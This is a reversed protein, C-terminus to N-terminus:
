MCQVQLKRSSSSIWRVNQTMNQTLQHLFSHKQSHNVKRSERKLINSLTHIWTWCFLYWEIRFILLRWILQFIKAFQQPWRLIYIFEFICFFSTGFLKNSSKTNFKLYFESIVYRTNKFEACKPLSAFNYIGPVIFIQFFTSVLAMQASLFNAPKQCILRYM